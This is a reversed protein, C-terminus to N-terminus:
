LISSPRRPRFLRFTTVPPGRTWWDHYRGLRYRYCAVCSLWHYCPTKPVNSTWEGYCCVVFYLGLGLSSVHAAIILSCSLSWPRSYEDHKCQSAIINASRECDHIIMIHVNVPCRIIWRVFASNPKESVPLGSDWATMTTRKHWLLLSISTAKRTMISHWRYYDSIM